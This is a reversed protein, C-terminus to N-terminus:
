PRLCRRNKLRQDIEDVRLGLDSAKACLDVLEETLNPFDAPNFVFDRYRHESKFNDIKSFHYVGDKAELRTVVGHTLDNRKKSIVDSKDLIEIADKKLASLALINSFAKRLFSSKGSYGTPLQKQFAIGGLDHHAILVICDLSQEFLAWNVEIFGIATCLSQFDSIENPTAENNFSNHV